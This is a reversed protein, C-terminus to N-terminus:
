FAYVADREAAPRVHARLGARDAVDVRIPFLEEIYSCVGAYDWLTPFAAEDLEVMIDIDSDPGAEGRALSGFLAAHVVKQKKLAAEHARLTAIVDERTM